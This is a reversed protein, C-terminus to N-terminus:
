DRVAEAVNPTQMGGTENSVLTHGCKTIFYKGHPSTTPIVLRCPTTILFSWNLDCV